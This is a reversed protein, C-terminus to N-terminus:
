SCIIEVLEKPQHVVYSIERGKVDDLKRFGWTVFAADVGANQATEVDVESDGVYLIRDKAIGTRESIERVAYADPKIPLNERAGLAAQWQWKAYYDAMIKKVMYDIKNSNVALLIGKESLADLMEAIGDYLRLGVQYHKEYASVLERYYDEVGDRALIEDPLAREALKKLGNGVFYYYDAKTHVPYGHQKLVANMAAGIGEISDLLTGDLDFIVLQYRNM